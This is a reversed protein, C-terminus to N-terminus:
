AAVELSTVRALAARIEPDQVQTAVIDISWAPVTGLVEGPAIGPAFAALLEPDTVEASVVYGDRSMEDPVAGLIMGPGAGWAARLAPDTVEQSIVYWVDPQGEVAHCGPCQTGVDCKMDAGGGLAPAETAATWITTIRITDHM